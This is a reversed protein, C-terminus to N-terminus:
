AFCQYPMSAGCQEYECRVKLAITAPEIGARSVLKGRSKFDFKFNYM